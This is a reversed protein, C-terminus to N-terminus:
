FVGWIGVRDFFVDLKLAKFLADALGLVSLCPTILKVEDKGKPLAESSM